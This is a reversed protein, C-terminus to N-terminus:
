LGEPYGYNPKLPDFFSEDYLFDNIDDIDEGKASCFPCGPLVNDKIEHYTKWSAKKIFHCTFLRERLDDVRFMCRSCDTMPYKAFLQKLDTLRLVKYYKKIGKMKDIFDDRTHPYYTSSCWVSDPLNALAHNTAIIVQRNNFGEGMICVIRKM